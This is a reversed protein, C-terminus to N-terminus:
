KLPKLKCFEKQKTDRGFILYATEGNSYSFHWEEGVKKMNIFESKSYALSRSVVERSWEEGVVDQFLLCENERCQKEIKLPGKLDNLDFSIYINNNRKKLEVFRVFMLDSAEFLESFCIASANYKVRNKKDKYERLVEFRGLLEENGDSSVPTGESDELETVLNIDEEAISQSIPIFVFLSILILGKIM